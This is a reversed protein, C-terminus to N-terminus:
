DTEPGCSVGTFSNSIDSIRRSGPDQEAASAQEDCWHGFLAMRTSDPHM